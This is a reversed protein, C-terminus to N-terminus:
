SKNKIVNFNTAITLLYSSIGITSSMNILWSYNFYFKGVLFITIVLLLGSLAIPKKFDNDHLKQDLRVNFRKSRTLQNVGIIILTLLTTIGTVITFAIPIFQVWDTVSLNRTTFFYVASGIGFVSYLASGVIVMLYKQQTTHKKWNFSYRITMSIAIAMAITIVGLIVQIVNSVPSNVTCLWEPCVVLPWAIFGIVAWWPEPYLALSIAFLLYLLALYEIQFDPVLRYLLQKIM